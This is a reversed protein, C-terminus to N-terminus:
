LCRPFCQLVGLSNCSPLKFGHRGPEKFWQVVWTIQCRTVFVSKHTNGCEVMSVYKRPKFLSALLAESKDWLMPAQRFVSESEPVGPSGHVEPDTPFFFINEGFPPNRRKSCCRAEEVAWGAGSAIPSESHSLLHHYELAFVLPMPNRGGGSWASLGPDQRHMCYQGPPISAGGVPRGKRISLWHCLRFNLCRQAAKMNTFLISTCLYLGM